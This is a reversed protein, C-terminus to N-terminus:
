SFSDFSIKSRMLCEIRITQFNQPIVDWDNEHGTRNLFRLM